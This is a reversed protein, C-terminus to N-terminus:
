VGVTLGRQCAEAVQMTARTSYNMTLLPVKEPTRKRAFALVKKSWKVFDVRRHVHRYVYYVNSQRLIGKADLRGWTYGVVPGEYRDVVPRQVTVGGVIKRVCPDETGDERIIPVETGGEIRNCYYIVPHLIDERFGILLDVRTQMADDDGFRAVFEQLPLPEFKPTVPDDGSTRAWIDGTKGLYALFEAGEEPMHAFTVVSGTM